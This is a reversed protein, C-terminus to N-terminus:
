KRLYNGIEQEKEICINSHKFNDWLGSVSDKNKKREKKKKKKFKKVEQQEPQSNKAEKHEVENNQNETENVRSNNGQLNNKIEMLIDKTESQIKKISNLDESLERLMRIDWTKLEADSPNSIEM